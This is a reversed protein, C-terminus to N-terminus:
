FRSCCRVWVAHTTTLCLPWQLIINRRIQLTINSHGIKQTFNFRNCETEFYKSYRHYRVIIKVSKRERTVPFVCFQNQKCTINAAKVCTVYNWVEFFACIWFARWCIYLACPGVQSVCNKQTCDCFNLCKDPLFNNDRLLVSLM